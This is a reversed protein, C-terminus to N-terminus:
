IDIPMQLRVQLNGGGVSEWKLFEGKVNYVAALLKIDTNQWIFM